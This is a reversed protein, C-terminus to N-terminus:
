YLKSIHKDIVKAKRELVAGVSWMDAKFPNYFGIDQKVEPAMWGRTGIIGQVLVNRSSHKEAADFDLLLVHSPDYKRSM